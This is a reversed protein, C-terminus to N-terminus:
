LRISKSATARRTMFFSLMPMSSWRRQRRFLVDSSEREMGGEFSEGVLYDWRGLCHAFVVAGVVFDPEPRPDELVDFGDGEGCGHEVGGDGDGEVYGGGGESFEAVGFAFHDQGPARVFVVYDLHDGGEGGAGEVLDDVCGLVRLRLPQLQVHVFVTGDRLPDDLMSLASTHLPQENRNIRRLQPPPLLIHPALKTIHPTIHLARPTIIYIATM